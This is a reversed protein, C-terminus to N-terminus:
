HTAPRDEESSGPTRGEWRVTQVQADLGNM